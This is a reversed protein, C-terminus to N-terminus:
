ALSSAAVAWDRGAPFGAGGPVRALPRPFARSPFARVHCRRLLIACPERSHRHGITAVLFSIIGIVWRSRRHRRRVHWREATRDLRAVTPMSMPLGHDRDTVTENDRRVTAEFPSSERRPRSDGAGSM